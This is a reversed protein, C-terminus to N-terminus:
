SPAVACATHIAEVSDLNWHRAALGTANELALLAVLFAALRRRARVPPAFTATAWGYVVLLCAAAIFFSLLYFM